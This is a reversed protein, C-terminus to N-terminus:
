EETSEEETAIPEYGDPITIGLAEANAANYKKVPNDYYEIPMEAVNAEGKLIKAAMQGTKEGLGYYDITLAALGCGAVIGEEGAIIPTKAPLAVNQIAETCAAATNDTPIYLADNEDCATQTVSAVDNSDAFTYVTVTDGAAELAEKVVNAQYKSNAEASCYMIGIKKADPLLEAFMAAQQDLPALDSTGSVNTGVTGNFDAIDLAVGYETISTGLVPIDGTASSAAQLAPTANALILDVNESVFSNVITSCTASDGAANQEDFKVADGLEATLADKFGQTAADLAPHQVLQCIGVNYTKGDEAAPAAAETAASETAAAASSEGTSASSGGCATLSAAMVVAMAAAALKNLKKM